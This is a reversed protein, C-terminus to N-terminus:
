DSHILSLRIGPANTEREALTFADGAASSHSPHVTRYAAPGLGLRRSRSRFAVLRSNDSLGPYLSLARRHSRSHDLSRSSDFVTRHHRLISEGRSDRAQM